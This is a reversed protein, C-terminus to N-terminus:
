GSAFVIDQPIGKEGDLLQYFAEMTPNEVIAAVDFGMLTALCIPEDSERTTARMQLVQAFTAFKGHSELLMKEQLNVLKLTSSIVYGRLDVLEM